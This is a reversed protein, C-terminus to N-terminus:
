PLPLPLGYFASYAVVIGVGLVIGLIVHIVLPWEGVGRRGRRQGARLQREDIDDGGLDSAQVSTFASLRDSPRAGVEPPPSVPTPTSTHPAVLGAASPREPPPTAVLAAPDQLDEPLEVTPVRLSVGRVPTESRTPAEVAPSRPDSTRIPAPSGAIEGSTRNFISPPMNAAAVAAGRIAPPGSPRAKAPQGSAPSAARPGPSQVPAVPPTAKAEPLPARSGASASNAPLPPLPTVPPPTVELEPSPKRSEASAASAPFTALSSVPPPVIQFGLAPTRHRPGATSTSPSAPPSVPRPTVELGRAPTMHRAPAGARPAAPTVRASVPRPTALLDLSPTVPPPTVTDELAPASSSPAPPPQAVAPKSPAWPIPAPRPGAAPRAVPRGVSPAPAPVRPGPPRAVPMDSEAAAVKPPAAPSPPAPAKAAAQAPAPPASQAGPAVSAQPRAPMAARERVGPMPPGPPLRPGASAEGSPRVMASAPRVPTNRRIAEVSILPDTGRRTREGSPPQVPIGTDGVVAATGTSRKSPAPVPPTVPSPLSLEYFGEKWAMVEPLREPADSGGVMTGVLEGRRYSIRAQEEGRWVELTCTLVYTECYRMLEVVPREALNGDGPGPKALSGTDPDPLRTEILFRAGAVRQLASVADPGRLDGAFADNTGGALLHVEGALPGDAGPSYVQIRSPLAAASLVSMLESLTGGAWETVHEGSPGSM